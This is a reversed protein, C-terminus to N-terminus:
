LTELKVQEFRRIYVFKSDSRELRWALAFRIYGDIGKVGDWDHGHLIMIM